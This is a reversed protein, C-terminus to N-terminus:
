YLYINRGCLYAIKKSMLLMGLALYIKHSSLVPLLSVVKHTIEDIMKKIKTRFYNMESLESLVYLFIPLKYEMSFSYPEEFLDDQFFSLENLVKFIVRKFIYEYDSNIEQDKLRINYYYLLLANEFWNLKRRPFMLMKYITDDFQKLSQNIEGCVFQNKFLYNIGLGIGPLGGKLDLSYKYYPINNIISDLISDAIRTYQDNNKGKIYFYICYGM